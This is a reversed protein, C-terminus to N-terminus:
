PTRRPCRRGALAAVVVLDRQGLEDLALGDVGGRQGRLTVLGLRRRAVGLGREDLLELVALDAPGDVYAEIMPVIM